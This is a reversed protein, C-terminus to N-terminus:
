LTNQHSALRRQICRSYLGQGIWNVERLRSGDSSRRCRRLNSRCSVSSTSMMTSVPTKLTCRLPSTRSATAFFGVLPGKQEAQEREQILELGWRTCFATFAEVNKVAFYNSRAHPEYNAM